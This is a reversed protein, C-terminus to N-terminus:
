GVAKRPHPVGDRAKRADQVIEGLWSWGEVETVGFRWGIERHDTSSGQVRRLRCFPIGHFPRKM